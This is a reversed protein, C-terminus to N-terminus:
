AVRSALFALRCLGTSEPSFLRSTPLGGPVDTKAKFARWTNKVKALYEHKRLTFFLYVRTICTIPTTLPSPHSLAIVRCSKAGNLEHSSQEIDGSSEKRRKKRKLFTKQKEMFSVPIVIAVHQDLIEENIYDRRAKDAPLMAFCSQLIHPLRNNRYMVRRLPYTSIGQGMLEVKGDKHSYRGQDGLDFQIDCQM